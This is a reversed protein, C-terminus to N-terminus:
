ASAEGFVHATHGNLLKGTPDLERRLTRFNEFDPYLKALEASGLSHLKGWHPRGGHRLYMPEFESFFYDYGESAWAHIAISARPGGQFPSLWATDSATHRYEIPFFADRKRDFMDIVKRIVKPGEELPLHYEMENFATPRQSSLMDGSWGVKEEMLGNPLASQAIKRRLWPAWGLTDRLSKLDALIDDEEAEMEESLPGDTEDHIILAGFGTCPLYFFEFHRHTEGLEEIRELISEIKEAYVRRKLKFAPISKVRYQTILGLCGLSVLGGHFLDSNSEPTVDLFDGAATVLRFGTVAEHLSALGQGTGHTATAYAGALTQVDIDAMNHFARGREFLESSAEFMLTGSGFDAEGTAKDFERLGSMQSMEIIHGDTPVLRSFSHGSGVPRVKHTTASLFEALEDDTEPSLIDLPTAKQNASWNAWGVRGEPADPAGPAYDPRDFDRGSWRVAKVTPVAAAAGILGAGILMNRRSTKM